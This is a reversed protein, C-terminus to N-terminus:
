SETQRDEPLEGFDELDGTAPKSISLLVAEMTEGARLCDSQPRSVTGKWGPHCSARFNEEGETLIYDARGLLGSERM